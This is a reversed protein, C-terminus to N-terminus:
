RNEHGSALLPVPFTCVYGTPKTLGKQAWVDLTYYHQQYLRLAEGSVRWSSTLSYKSGQFDHILLGASTARSLLGLHGLFSSWQASDAAAEYLIGILKSLEQRSPLM